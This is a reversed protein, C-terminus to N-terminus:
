NKICRISAGYTLGYPNSGILPTNWSLTILWGSFFGNESHELSSWIRAESGANYFTGDAERASGPLVTFGTSNTAGTDFIWHSTGAERLKTDAAINGGLYTILINWEDMTPVHWGTPCVNRSDKAVYFNYLNGYVAAISPDNNLFCYAARTLGGWEYISSVNPITDGNQFHTAKLNETIWEQTGIQVTYYGNGDIDSVNFTTVTIDDGSTTGLENQATARFYYKTGQVLDTIRASVEVLSSGTVPNPVTTISSGHASTTGYEIVVSTALYNPNVTAKILVSNTTLGSFSIGSYTPKQGLTTFSQDESYTVGLENESKIRFHYITAPSLSSIAASVSSISDARLPNQSAPISNGYTTTLGYEFEALSSLEMPNVKGHLVAGTTTIDTVTLDTIQPVEGLTTFSVQQGYQTGTSNIAYARVFYKTAVKLGTLKSKFLGTGTGDSTFKDATTPKENESWCVGRTKIEANGDSTINGGGTATVTGQETIESTTLQPLQEKICGPLLLLLTIFAMIQSSFRRRRM